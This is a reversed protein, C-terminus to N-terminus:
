CKQMTDHIEVIKLGELQPATFEFSMARDPSISHQTSVHEVHTALEFDGGHLMNNVDARTDRLRKDLHAAVFDSRLLVGTPVQVRSRPRMM